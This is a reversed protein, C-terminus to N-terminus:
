PSPSPRPPFTGNQVEQGILRLIDKGEDADNAASLRQEIL